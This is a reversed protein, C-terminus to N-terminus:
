DEVVFFQLRAVDAEGVDRAQHVPAVSVGRGDALDQLGEPILHVVALLDVDDARNLVIARDAAARPPAGLERLQAVLRQVHEILLLVAPEGPRTLVPLLARRRVARDDAVRVEGAGARP